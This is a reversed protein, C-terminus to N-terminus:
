FFRELLHGWSPCVIVRDFEVLGEFWFYSLDVWEGGVFLFGCVVEDFFVEPISFHGEM